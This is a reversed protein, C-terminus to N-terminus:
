CLIRNRLGGGTVLEAPLRERLCQELDRWMVPKALCGSFGEELFRQKMERRADATLAVVPITFNENEERLRRFTEIGDMGSMMYDMFIVHYNKQKVAELCEGGSTVTDV